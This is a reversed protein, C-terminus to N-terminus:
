NAGNKQVQSRESLMNWPEDMDSYRLTTQEKNNTIDWQM